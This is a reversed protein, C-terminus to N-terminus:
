KGRGKRIPARVSSVLARGKANLLGRIASYPVMTWQRGCPVGGAHGIPFGVALGKATLALERYNNERPAVGDEFIERGIDPAFSEPGFQERLCKVRLLQKKVSAAIARLGAEHDEFLSLIKIRDGTRVDVTVGLWSDGDNGGPYLRRLPILASVVTTSASALPPKYTCYVGRYVVPGIRLNERASPEYKRQNDVIAARLGGNVKRLKAKGRSSAAQPVSGCTDYRPVKFKPAPVQVLGLPKVDRPESPVTDVSVDADVCGALL